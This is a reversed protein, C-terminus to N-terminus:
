LKKGNQVVVAIAWVALAVVAFVVAFVPDVCEGGPPCM